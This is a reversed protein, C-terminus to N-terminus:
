IQPGEAFTASKRNASRIKQTIQLDAFVYKKGQLYQIYQPFKFTYMIFNKFLGRLSNKSLITCFKTSIQPYVIKPNIM